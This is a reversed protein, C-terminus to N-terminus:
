GVRKIKGCLLPELIRPRVLCDAGGVAEPIEEEENQLMWGITKRGGRFCINLTPSIGRGASEHL